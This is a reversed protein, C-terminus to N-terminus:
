WLGLYDCHLYTIGVGPKGPCWEKFQVVDFKGRVVVRPRLTLVVLITTAANFELM